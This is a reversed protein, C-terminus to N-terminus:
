FGWKQFADILHDPARNEFDLKQFRAYDIDYSSNLAIQRKFEETQEDTFIKDLDIKSLPRNRGHCGVCRADNKESLRYFLSNGGPFFEITYYDYKKPQDPLDHDALVAMELRENVNEHAAEEPLGGNITFIFDADEGYFIGRPSKESAPQLRTAKKLLRFNRFYSQPIDAENMFRAVSDIRKAEIMEVIQELSLPNENAFLIRTLLIGGGIALGFRVV